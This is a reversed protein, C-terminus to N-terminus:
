YDGPIHTWGQSVLSECIYQGISSDCDFCRRRWTQENINRETVLRYYVSGNAARAANAVSERVGGFLVSGAYVSGDYIFDSTAFLGEEEEMITGPIKIDAVDIYYTIGDPYGHELVYFDLQNQMISINHLAETLKSKEVAKQYQPLAIAALIGIILVVVLLEILTFGAKTTKEMKGRKRFYLFLRRM